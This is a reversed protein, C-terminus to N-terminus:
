KSIYHVRLSSNVYISFNSFILFRGGGGGDDDSDGDEYNDDNEDDQWVVLM